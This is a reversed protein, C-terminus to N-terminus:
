GKGDEEKTPNPVQQNNSSSSNAILVIIARKAEVCVARREDSRSAKSECCAHL